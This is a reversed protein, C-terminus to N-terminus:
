DGALPGRHDHADGRRGRPPHASALAAGGGRAQERLIRDVLFRYGADTPVRARPVHVPALAPGGGRPALAGLPDDLIRRAPRYRVRAAQLRGSSRTQM